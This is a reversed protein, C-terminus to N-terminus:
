ADLLKKDTVVDRVDCINQEEFKANDDFFIIQSDTDSQDILLPKGVKDKFSNSSWNFYDDQIAM